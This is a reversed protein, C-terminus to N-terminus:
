LRIDVKVSLTCYADCDANARRSLTESTRSARVETDPNISDKMLIDGSRRAMTWSSSRMIHRVWSTRTKSSNSLSTPVQGSSMWSYSQCLHRKEPWSSFIIRRLKLIWCCLVDIPRINFTRCHYTFTKINRVTLAHIQIILSDSMSALFDLSESWWIICLAKSSLWCSRLWTFHSPVLTPLM